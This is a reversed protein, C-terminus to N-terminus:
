RSPLSFFNSSIRPLFPFTVILSFPFLNYVGNTATTPVIISVSLLLFIVTDFPFTTFLPTLAIATAKAAGPNDSLRPIAENFVIFSTAM